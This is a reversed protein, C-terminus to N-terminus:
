YLNYSDEAKILEYKIIESALSEKSPTQQSVFHTIEATSAKEWQTWIKNLHTQAKKSLLSLPKKSSARTEELEYMHYDDRYIQKVNIIGGQEMEELLRFYEDAVPGFNIKRYALGSLSADNTFYWSFDALYLLSALKTKKITTKSVKAQRIFYLMMEQYIKLNPATVTVLDTLTIGFLKTLSDAEGLSLEKTGKEVAVYSARSMNSARAVEAQSLTRAERLSKLFPAYSTKM